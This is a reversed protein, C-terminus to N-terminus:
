PSLNPNLNNNYRSKKEPANADKGWNVNSPKRDNPNDEIGELQLRTKLAKQFMAHEESVPITEDDDVDSDGDADNVIAKLNRKSSKNAAKHEENHETDERKKVDRLQSVAGSLKQGVSVIWFELLADRIDKSHGEIHTVFDDLLMPLKLRFGPQNVDTFRMANYPCYEIGKASEWWVVPLADDLWLYHM